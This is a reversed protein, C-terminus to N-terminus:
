IGDKWNWWLLKGTEREEKPTEAYYVACRYVYLLCCDITMGEHRNTLEYLEEPRKGKLDAIGRIGINWLDEAISKGVGPIQRLEKLVEPKSRM